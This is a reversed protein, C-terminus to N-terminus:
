DFRNEEGVVQLLVEELSAEKTGFSLIQGGSEVITEVIQPRVEDEGTTYIMLRQGEVKVDQICGMRQLAAVVGEDPQALVIELRVDSGTTRRLNEVSDQALLRGHSIIGVEDCVAEVESLIHSSMFITVNRDTKLRIILDRIEKAGMPDLGLAPEDLLLVEPEALLAQAMALRQKMGKSFTGVYSDRRGALGVLELLEASRRQRENTPMDLLRGVYDLTEAATMRKYFGQHEAVYGISRRVAMPEELLDHGAVRATGSDPRILGVLMKIYQM